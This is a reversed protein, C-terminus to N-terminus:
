REDHARGHGRGGDAAAGIEAGITAHDVAPQLLAAFQAM